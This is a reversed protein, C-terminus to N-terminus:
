PFGGIYLNACNRSHHTASSVPSGTGRAQLEETNRGAMGLQRPAVNPFHLQEVRIQVLAAAGFAFDVSLM